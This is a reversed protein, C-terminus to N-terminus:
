LTAPRLACGPCGPVPAVPTRTLTFRELNHHLFQGIPAPAGVLIRIAVYAALNGAVASVAGLVPFDACWPPEEPILCRLCPGTRPDVSFLQIEDAYMAADVFPKGAALAADNLLLREEFTPAAGIALDVERMWRAASTGSIREGHAIVNMGPALRLLAQEAQPARPTGIATSDMLAMRHLDEELLSGEHFFVIRGVGALALAQATAGGLGGVRTVLVSAAALRAQEASGLWPLLTQRRHRPANM